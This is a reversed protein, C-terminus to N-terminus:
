MEADADVDVDLGEEDVERVRVGVLGVFGKLVGRSEGEGAAEEEEDGGLVLVLGLALRAEPIPASRKFM